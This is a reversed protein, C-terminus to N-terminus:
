KVFTEPIHVNGLSGPHKEHAMILWPCEAGREKLFIGRPEEGYNGTPVQTAVSKADLELLRCPAFQMERCWLDPLSRWLEVDEWGVRAVCWRSRVLIEGVYMYMEIKDGEWTTAM